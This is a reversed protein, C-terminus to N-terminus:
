TPVLFYDHLTTTPGCLNMKIKVNNSNSMQWPNRLYNRKFLLKSHTRLSKVHSYSM